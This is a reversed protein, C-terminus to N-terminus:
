KICELNFVGFKGSNKVILFESSGVRKLRNHREIELILTDDENYLEQIDKIKNYSIIVVGSLDSNFKKFENHDFETHCAGYYHKVSDIMYPPDFAWICTDSDFRQLSRYDENLIEVRQLLKSAKLFTETYNFTNYSINIDKYQISDYNISYKHRIYEGVARDINNNSKEYRNVINRFDNINDTKSLEILCKDIEGILELPNYKLCNWFNVVKEDIDNYIAEKIVGNELLNLGLSFGGGFPEIYLINEGVHQKVTNIIYEVEKYIWNYKGGVYNLVTRM